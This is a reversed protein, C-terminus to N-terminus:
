SLKSVQSSYLLGTLVGDTVPDNVPSAWLVVGYVPGKVCMVATSDWSAGNLQGTFSAIRDTNAM